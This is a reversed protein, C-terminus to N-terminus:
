YNPMEWCSLRTDHPLPPPEYGSAVATDCPGSHLATYSVSLWLSVAGPVGPHVEQATQAVRGRQQRGRGRGLYRMGASSWGSLATPFRASQGRGVQETFGSLDCPQHGEPLNSLHRFLGSDQSVAMEARGWVGPRYSGESPGGHLAARPWGPPLLTWTGMVAGTLKGLPNM